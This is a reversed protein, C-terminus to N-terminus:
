FDYDDINEESFVLPPGLLVEDPRILEV